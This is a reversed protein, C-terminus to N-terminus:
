DLGFVTRCGPITCEHEGMWRSLMALEILDVISGSLKDVPYFDRRDIKDRSYRDYSIYRPYAMIDLGLDICLQDVCWLLVIHIHLKCTQTKRSRQDRPHYRPRTDPYATGKIRM